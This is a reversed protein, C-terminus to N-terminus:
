NKFLADRASDYVNYCAATEKIGTVVVPNVYTKKGSLDTRVQRDSNVSGVFGRTEVNTIRVEILTDLKAYLIMLMQRIHIQLLRECTNRCWAHTIMKKYQEDRIYYETPKYNKKGAKEYTNQALQLHNVSWKHPNKRMDSWKKIGSERDRCM